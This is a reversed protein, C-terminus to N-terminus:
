PNGAVYRRPNEPINNQRIEFHVHPGTSAGTSGETGITDGANVRQGEHVSILYLHGYLSTLGGGHDIIVHNGYSAGSYVVSIVVGSHFAAVPTQGAPRASSIDIGTHSSQFPYDPAGFETTVKGHIPWISPGPITVPGVANASQLKAAQAAALAPSYPHPVAYPMGSIATSFHASLGNQAIYATQYLAIVVLAYFALACEFKLGEVLYLLRKPM